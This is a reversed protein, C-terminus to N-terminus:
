RVLGILPAALHSLLPLLMVLLLFATRLMTRPRKKWKLGPSKGPRATPIVGPTGEKVAVDFYRALDEADETVARRSYFPALVQYRHGFRTVWSLGYGRATSEVVVVFVEDGEYTRRAWKSGAFNLIRYAKKSRLDWLVTDSLLGRVLCVFLGLLILVISTKEPLGALPVWLLGGGYLLLVLGCLTVFGLVDSGSSVIIETATRGTRVLNWGGIEGEDDEM